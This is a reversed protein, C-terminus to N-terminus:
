WGWKPGGKKRWGRKRGRSWGPPAGWPRAEAASPILALTATGAATALLVGFFGRRTVVSEPDCDGMEAEM